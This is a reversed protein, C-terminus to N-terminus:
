TYLHCCLVTGVKLGPHSAANTGANFYAAWKKHSLLSCFELNKLLMEVLCYDDSCDTHGIFVGKSLVYLIAPKFNNWL